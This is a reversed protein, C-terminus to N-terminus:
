RSDKSYEVATIWNPVSYLYGRSYSGDLYEASFDICGNKLGTVKALKSADADYIVTGINIQSKRYTYYAHEKRLKKAEVELSEAKNLRGM